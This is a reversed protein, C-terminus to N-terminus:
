LWLVFLRITTYQPLWAMVVTCYTGELSQGNVSLVRQGPQLGSKGAVTGERTAQVCIGLDARTTDSGGALRLGIGGGGREPKPFKVTINVPGQPPSVGM